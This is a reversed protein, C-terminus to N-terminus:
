RGSSTRSTVGTYANRGSATGTEAAAQAAFVKSSGMILSIPIQKKLNLGVAAQAAFVKSSGMMLSIPIQKTLNLGVAWQHFLM